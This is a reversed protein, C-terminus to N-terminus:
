RPHLGGLRIRAGVAYQGRNADVQRKAEDYFAPDTADPFEMLSLADPSTLLPRAIFEKRAATRRTEAFLPPLFDVNIGDLGLEAALEAPTFDERGMIQVQIERDVGAEMFPVRDPQQVALATLVRERSIM